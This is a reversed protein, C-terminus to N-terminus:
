KSAFPGPGVGAYTTVIDKVDKAADLQYTYPPKFDVPATKGMQIKPGFTYVMDDNTQLRGETQGPESRSKWPRKIGDFYSSELLVQSLIGLGICTNNSTAGYYNNFIHVQGFRVRPARDQVLDGIWNHHLTVHLKGTDEAALDDRNGILMSLRHDSAANTYSFKCWSVTFFDSGHTIDFQGDACENFHCHDVWVHHTSHATMGDGGGMGQGVGKPNTFNLNCLIINSVGYLYVHGVFGADTGLGIITKNAAIKVSQGGFDLTGSVLINLPETAGAAVRFEDFTAVINTKGGQGGTTGGNVTAFGVLSFDPANANSSNDASVQEVLIGLCILVFSIIRRLKTHSKMLIHM